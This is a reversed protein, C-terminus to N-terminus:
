PAVTGTETGLIRLGGPETVPGLGPLHAPTTSSEVPVLVLKVKDEWPVKVTSMVGKYGPRTAVYAVQREPEIPHSRVVTPEFNSYIGAFVLEAFCATATVLLLEGFVGARGQSEDDPRPANVALGRAAGLAVLGDILGGVLLPFTAEPIRVTERVPLHVQDMAPSPGLEVAGAQPDLRSILASQPETTIAVPYTRTSEREVESNWGYLTQFIVGCGSLGPLLLGVVVPAVKSSWRASAM